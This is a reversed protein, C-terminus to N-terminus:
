LRRVARPRSSMLILGGITCLIITAPEPVVFGTGSAKFIAGNTSAAGWTGYLNGQNDAFSIKASGTSSDFSYLDTVVYNNSADLKFLTGYFGPGGSSTTGYLNGAADVLLNGTPFIGNSGFAAITTPAYNNSADLKFVTGGGASGAQATTGYLNGSADSVLAGLPYQGPVDKIFTVLTSLAYNNSKTLRYVTGVNFDGGEETTGYLNGSSDFLLAAVPNSGTNFDFSALTTLAYNNSATLKFVTGQFATGGASTTGYFNGAADAILSSQPDAGNSINFSTLTTLAYNNSADLKFVTGNGGSGSTRTTGYLNGAADSILGAYPWAGNTDNFNALTTIAYNNAATLKFVTGLNNAGGQYTTGYLNGLSDAILANPGYGNAGNFAALTTFTVAGAPASFQGFLAIACAWGV